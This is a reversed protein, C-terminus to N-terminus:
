HAALSIPSNCSHPCTSRNSLNVDATQHGMLSRICTILPPQVYKRNRSLLSIFHQLGEEGPWLGMTRMNQWVRESSDVDQASACTRLCLAFLENNAQVGSEDMIRLVAWMQPTYGCRQCWAIANMFLGVSPEVGEALMRKLQSVASTPHVRNVYREHEQQAERTSAGNSAEDASDEPLELDPPRPRHGIVLSEPPPSRRREDRLQESLRKAREQLAPSVTSICRAAGPACTRVRFLTLRM